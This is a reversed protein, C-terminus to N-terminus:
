LLTTKNGSADNTSLLQSTIPFGCSSQPCLIPFQRDATTCFYISNDYYVIVQPHKHAASFSPRSHVAPRYNNLNNSVHEYALARALYIQRQSRSPLQLSACLATSYCFSGDAATCQVGTSSDCPPIATRGPRLTQRKKRVSHGPPRDGSKGHISLKRDRSTVCYSSSNHAAVM